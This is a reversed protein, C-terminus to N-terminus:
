CSSSLRCRMANLSRRGLAAFCMSDAFSGFFHHCRPPCHTVVSALVMGELILEEQGGGGVEKCVNGRRSGGGLGGGVGGWLEKGFSCGESNMNLFKLQM